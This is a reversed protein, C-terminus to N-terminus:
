ECHWFQTLIVEDGCDQRKDGGVVRLRIVVDAVSLRTSRQSLSITIGFNKTEETVSQSVPGCRVLVWGRWAV